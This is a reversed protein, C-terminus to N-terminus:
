RGLNIEFLNDLTVDFFGQPFCSDGYKDELKGNPLIKVIEPERNYAYIVEISDDKNKFAIWRLRNILHESYTQIVLDGTGNSYSEYLSDAVSSQEKPHLFFDCKYKNSYKNLVEENNTVLVIFKKKM